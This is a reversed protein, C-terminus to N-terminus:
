GTFQPRVAAAACRTAHATLTRAAAGNRFTVRATVTQRAAGSRRVPINATVRTVGSRVTVTRVRRGNVFFTVSRLQRGSVTIRATRTACRSQASLRATASRAQTGAVGSAPTPTPTAAPAVPTVPPAPTPTPTPPPPPPPPPPPTAPCNLKQAPGAPTDPPLSNHDATDTSLWWSFPQATHTDHLTFPVHLSGTAGIVTTGQQLTVGDVTVKWHVTNPGAASFNTWTFDAGTCSVTGTATHAFASAPFALALLALAGALWLKRRAPRRSRSRVV